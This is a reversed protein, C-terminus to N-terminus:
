YNSFMIIKISSVSIVLVEKFHEAPICYSGMHLFSAKEFYAPWNRIFVGFNSLCASFNRIVGTLFSFFIDIYNIDSAM